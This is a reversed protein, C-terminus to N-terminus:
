ILTKAFEEFLAKQKSTLRKPINVKVKVFHDGYSRTKIIPMGKGQLRFTSESQTGPPIKMKAHGNILSVEAESGLVAQPLSITIKSLLDSGMREFKQHPLIDIIVYLNGKQGGGRPVRLTTGTEIGKPIKLTLAHQQQGDKSFRIRKEAGYYADELTIQLTLQVDARAAMQNRQSFFDFNGGGFIHSFLDEGFGFQSMDKFIDSFDAGRFIDERTFKEDIGAHGRQDYVARKQADSLVGYAESVQKFKEEAEKKKEEPVRDPHYKLVNERYAKKIEELTANPKVGLIEYYDFEAVM